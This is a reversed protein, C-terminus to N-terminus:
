AAKRLHQGSGRGAQQSQSSSLLEAQEMLLTEFLAETGRNDFKLRMKWLWQRFAELTPHTVSIAREVDMLPQLCRDVFADKDQLYGHLIVYRPDVIDRRCRDMTSFALSETTSFRGEQKLFPYIAVDFTGTRYVKPVEFSLNKAYCAGGNIHENIQLRKRRFFVMRYLNPVFCGMVLSSDDTEEWQQALRDMWDPKVPVMDSEMWLSFGGDPETNAAVYDMCDWFMATAGLPYGFLQTPCAFPTAPAIRLFTDMLRQSPQILGSSALLFEYRTQQPGLALIHDAIRIYRDIEQESFYPIIVINTTAV